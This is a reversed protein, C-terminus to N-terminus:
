KNFSQFIVCVKVEGLYGTVHDVFLQFQLPNFTSSGVCLGSVFVVYKDEGVDFTNVIYIIIFHFLFKLEWITM